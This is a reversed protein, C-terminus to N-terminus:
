SYFRGTLNMQYSGDGAGQKGKGLFERLPTMAVGYSKTKEVDVDCWGLNMWLQSAVLPNRNKQQEIDEESLYQARIDKGSISSMIAAIDNMMLNESALPITHGDLQSSLFAKAAFKGVDLTDLIGILKDPKYAVTLIHESALKSFYFQSVPYVLNPMLFGPQLITWREFGASKVADQISAKVTWYSARFADPSWERFSEHKGANTVSSYVCQKVGAALAANIVNQAHRLEEKADQTPALVLFVGQCGEAAKRIADYTGFDGQFLKAGDKELEQAKISSPDRVLAHVRQGASLLCSATHGGQNGTAGTVLFSLAM